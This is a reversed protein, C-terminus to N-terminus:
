IAVAYRIKIIKKEEGQAKYLSNLDIRMFLVNKNM